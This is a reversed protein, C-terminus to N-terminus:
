KLKVRDREPLFPKLQEQIIYPNYGQVISLAGNLIMEKIRMEEAIRRKLRAAIPFFILNASGVGYITAVFAVAIGAGLKSTDSLNEMVHILGLVAGIIGITPAYGGADMFVKAGSNLKREEIDRETEFVNKVIDPDIGDIVYRLVTGAYPHSFNELRKELSLISEKRAIQSADVLENYIRSEIGKKQSRFVWGILKWASILDERTTGVIVAGFTGGFVIFAAAGQVLTGVQGGELIQGLLIGGIGIILGVWVSINM